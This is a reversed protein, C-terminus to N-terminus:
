ADKKVDERPELAALDPLDEDEPHWEGGRVEDGEQKNWEQGNSWRAVKGDCSELSFGLLRVKGDEERLVFPLSSATTHVLLGKVVITTDAEWRGQLEKQFPIQYPQVGRENLCHRPLWGGPLTQNGFSDGSGNSLRGHAWSGESKSVLVAQGVAVTLRAEGCAECDCVACGFQFGVWCWYTCCCWGEGSFAQRVPMVVSRQLKETKQAIQEMSIDFHSSGARVNPWVPPGPTAGGPLLWSFSSSGLVAASNGKKGLDYPFVFKKEGNRRRRVEAKEVVYEEIMTMNSRVTHQMEWALTGVLLMVALAAFWAVLGLVIHLQMVARIFDTRRKARQWAFALLVLLESHVVFSHFTAVPVFHVFQVFPKLNIQGVCTNTWPCHHDMSLVCRRCSSCHHARPPKFGQCHACWQLLDNVPIEKIKLPVGELDSAQLLNSLEQESPKWGLPVFGPGRLVATLYSIQFRPDHSRVIDQLEKVTAFSCELKLLIYTNRLRTSQRRKELVLATRGVNPLMGEKVPCSALVCLVEVCFFFLEKKGHQWFGVPMIWGHYVTSASIGLILSMTVAPTFGFLRWAAACCARLSREHDHGSPM